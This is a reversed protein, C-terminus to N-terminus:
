QSPLLTEVESKKGKLFERWVSLAGMQEGETVDIAPELVLQPREVSKGSELYMRGAFNKPKIRFHQDLLKGIKQAIQQREKPADKPLQLLTEIKQDKALANRVPNGWLVVYTEILRQLQEISGRSCEMRSWWSAELSCQMALKWDETADQLRDEVLNPAKIKGFLLEDVDHFLTETWELRLWFPAGEHRMLAYDLALLFERGDELVYYRWFNHKEFETLLLKRATQHQKIHQFTSPLQRHAPQCWLLQLDAEITRIFLDRDTTTWEVLQEALMFHNPLRKFLPHSPFM